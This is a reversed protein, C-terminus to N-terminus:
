RDYFLSCITTEVAEMVDRVRTESEMKEQGKRGRGKEDDLDSEKEDREKRRSAGHLSGDARMDEELSMYFDQLAEAVDEPVTEIHNVVYGNNTAQTESHSQGKVLKKPQPKVFPYWAVTFEHVREIVWGPVPNNM